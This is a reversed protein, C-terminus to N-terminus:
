VRLYRGERPTDPVVNSASCRSGGGKLEASPRVVSIADRDPSWRSRGKSSAWTGERQSNNPPSGPQSLPRACCGNLRRPSAPALSFARTKAVSSACSGSLAAALAAPDVRDAAMVALTMPDALLAIPKRM